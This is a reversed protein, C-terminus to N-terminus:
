AGTFADWTYNASSNWMLWSDIGLDAAAQQQARVEAVGYRVGDDFDQLWPVLPVGTGALVQQFDALSATVIDYPQRNPDDVGYEGANWHSPYVMPAVYDLWPAMLAIDQGITNPRSAAIGFVSAGQYAGLPRLRQMGERLFDAIEETTPRTRGPIVMSEPKGEPRRVYDWLIDDVGAAVAEEALDLNYDRVGPHVYNTFGGYSGLMEGGPTQLVWDREGAAWKAEALIPDRFAVIRVVVRAGKAQLEEVAAALDYPEDVVAGIERALANATDIGVLGDENKVDLQVTDIAGSALAADLRARIAPNRWGDYDIHLGRAGPHVVTFTVTETTTNGAGDTAVVATPGIPPRPLTVRFTGSPEVVAATDAVTVTAGPETSGTVVVPERLRIGDNGAVGTLPPAATDVTFRVTRTAAPLLFRDRSV